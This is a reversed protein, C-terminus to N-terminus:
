APAARSPSGRDSRYLRSTLRPRTYECRVPAAVAFALTNLDRGSSTDVVARASAIMSQAVSEAVYTHRHGNCRSIIERLQSFAAMGTIQGAECQRILASLSELGPLGGEERLCKALSLIAVRAVEDPEAERRILRYPKYWGPAVASGIMDRDPM